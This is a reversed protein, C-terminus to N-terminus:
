NLTTDAAQKLGQRYVAEPTKYGLSQHLRECNYFEFYDRLGQRAETVNRYDKLYVEEYKVSRWLREVFINDFARGRGDMSIRVKQELLRNTFVESTFQSGQDTNFVEPCAIQLAEDLASVCFSSEMTVSLEWSLVFRSHWDMVAVLYIFGQWLRIYTIDTSWVQNVRHVSVGRLLYPYVRNEINPASLRPPPYQAFLGMNRLLRRVRKKNVWYGQTELWATMRRVGYFPCRTYQEDLRRMLLLNEKSEPRAKYYLSARALGILECQRERSIQPHQRDIL